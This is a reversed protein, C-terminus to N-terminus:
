HSRLRRWINAAVLLTSLRREETDVGVKADVDDSQGHGPEAENELAVVGQSVGGKFCTLRVGIDARPRSSFTLRVGHFECTLPFNILIRHWLCKGFTEQFSQGVLGVTCNMVM